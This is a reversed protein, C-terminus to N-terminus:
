AADEQAFSYAPWPGTCVVPLDHHRAAFDNVLSRVEGVRAAPVLYAATLQERADLDHVTAHADRAISTLREHLRGVTDRRRREGELRRRMYAAGSEAHERPPPEHWVRLGVEVCDRVRDLAAVIAPMRRRLSEALAGEDDAVEGFRVPLVATAAQALAEVVAGHTLADRRVTEASTPRTRRSFVTAVRGLSLQELEAGDLGTVAPLADLGEAFAYVHIM